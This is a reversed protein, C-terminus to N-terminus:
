EGFEQKVQKALEATQKATLDDAVNKPYALLLLIVDQRVATTSSGPVEARAEDELGFNRSVAFPILSM